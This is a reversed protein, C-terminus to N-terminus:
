GSSKGDKKNSKTVSGPDPHPVVLYKMGAINVVSQAEIPRLPTAGKAGFLRGPPRKKTAGATTGTPTLTVSPLAKTKAVSGLSASAATITTGGNGLTFPKNEKGAPPTCSACYFDYVSYDTQHPGLGVCTPHYLSQCSACSLQPFGTTNPCHISCTVPGPQPPRLIPRKKSSPTTSMKMKKTLDLSSSPMHINVGIGLHPEKRKIKSIPTITVGSNGLSQPQPQKAELEFDEEDDANMSEDASSNRVESSTSTPSDFANREKMKGFMKVKLVGSPLSPSLSTATTIEKIPKKPTDLVAAAPLVVPKPPFIEVVEDVARCIEQVKPANLRDNRFSFNHLTLTASNSLYPRLDSQSKFTRPKTGPM